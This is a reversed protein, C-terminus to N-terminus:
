DTGPQARVNGAIIVFQDNRDMAWSQETDGKAIPKELGYSIITIRSGDVGHDVLYRKAAAARRQGLALNYTESGRDDCNGAIQVQVDPNKLLVPIKADLTAKDQETLVAQDFSFFTMQGLAAQEAAVARDAAAKAAEAARRDAAMQTLVVSDEWATTHKATVPPAPAVQPPTVHSCAALAVLVTAGTTLIRAPRQYSRM